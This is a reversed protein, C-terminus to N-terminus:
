LDPHYTRPDATTVGVEPWKWNERRPFSRDLHDASWYRLSCLTEVETRFNPLHDTTRFNVVVDPLDFEKVLFAHAAIPIKSLLWDTLTPSFKGRAEVYETIHFRLFGAVEDDRYNLLEVKKAQFHDREDDGVPFQYWKLGLRSRTLDSKLDDLGKVTSVGVAKQRQARNAWPHDWFQHITVYRSPESEPWQMVTIRGVPERQGSAAFALACPLDASFDTLRTPLGYHQLFGLAEHANLNYDEKHQLQWLLAGPLHRLNTRDDSTLRRESGDKVLYADPRDEGCLTTEFCGSEGRCLYRPLVEPAIIGSQRSSWPEIWPDRIADNYLFEVCEKFSSFTRDPEFGM